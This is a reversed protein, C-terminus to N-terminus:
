LTRINPSSLYVQPEASLDDSCSLLEVGFENQGDIEVCVDSLTRAKRVGSSAAVESSSAVGSSSSETVGGKKEGELQHQHDM